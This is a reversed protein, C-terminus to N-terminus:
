RIARCDKCEWKSNPGIGVLAYGATSECVRCAPPGSGGSSDDTVYVFIVTAVAVGIAGVISWGVLTDVEFEDEKACMIVVFIVAAVGAWFMFTMPDM